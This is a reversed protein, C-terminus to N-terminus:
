MIAIVWPVRYLDTGNVSLGAPAGDLTILTEGLDNDIGCRSSGRTDFFQPAAVIAGGRDDLHQYPIDVTQRALDFVHLRQRRHRLPADPEDDVVLSPRYSFQLDCNTLDL